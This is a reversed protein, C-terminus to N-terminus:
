IDLITDSTFVGFNATQKPKLRRSARLAITAEDMAPQIQALDRPKVSLALSRRSGFIMWFQSLPIVAFEDQSNGLLAGRKASVGVVRFHVGEIQIVKEIPDVDAGFLRDATQWGLITVPRSSEVETPSMLRGREADFSSFTIYEPSVGQVRMNDISKDRYTIRGRSGSDAMVAAILDSGYRRIARMDDMTIRPNGRVKDFEEDSRTIPFQQISFSDAGAQNLIAQKVSANLGQIMSVVAIISTVAVINGLVTMFSRLKASWIADLAIMASEFIKNM